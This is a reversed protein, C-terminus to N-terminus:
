SEPLHKAIEAACQTDREHADTVPETEIPHEVSVTGQRRRLQRCFRIDGLAIRTFPQRMLSRRAIEGVVGRRALEGQRGILATIAGRQIEVHEVDVATLGGFQRVVNDAVMIPDPKPAGPQHPVDALAAAAADRQDRRAGASPDATGTTEDAPM